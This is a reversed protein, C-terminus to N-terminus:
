CAFNQRLSVSSISEELTSDTMSLSLTSLSINDM